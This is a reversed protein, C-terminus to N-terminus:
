LMVFVVKTVTGMIGTTGVGFRILACSHIKVILLDKFTTLEVGKFFTKDVGAFLVTVPHNVSISINKVPHNV